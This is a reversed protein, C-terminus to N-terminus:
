GTFRLSEVINRRSAFIAPVLASVLGILVAVVAVIVSAEWRFALAEGFNFAYVHRLGQDFYAQAEPKATTITFSHDGLGAWLRTAPATDAAAAPPLLMGAFSGGGCMNRAIAAPDFLESLAPPSEPRRAAAVTIAVGCIVGASLFIRPEPATM